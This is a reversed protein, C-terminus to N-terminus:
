TLTSSHTPESLSLEDESLEDESQDEPDIAKWATKQRKPPHQLNVHGPEPAPSSSAVSLARSM